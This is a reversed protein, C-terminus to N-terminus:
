YFRIDLTVHKILTGLTNTGNHRNKPDVTREFGKNFLGPAGALDFGHLLNLADRKTDLKFPLLSQKPRSAAM